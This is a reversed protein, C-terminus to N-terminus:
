ELICKRHFIARFSSFLLLVNADEPRMHAEYEHYISFAVIEEGDLQTIRICGRQFKVSQSEHVLVGIFGLGERFYKEDYESCDVEFIIDQMVINRGKITMVPVGPLKPKLIIPNNCTIITEIENNDPIDIDFPEHGDFVHNGPVTIIIKEM